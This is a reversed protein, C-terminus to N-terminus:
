FIDNHDIESSLRYSSTDETNIEINVCTGPFDNDMKQYLENSATFEYYGFRSIIQLKGRNLKIFDKLLKLGLGGPLNGTKTTHGEMVAWKLANVSNIKRGTFNRVNERIGIGADSITFDLRHKTPYFQGCVFIGSKSKSHFTANIFIELLSQRFRKTLVDSMRPIGKGKMYYDLYESFQEDANLKFIKFPLTTQNTDPIANDGFLTLFRNRKLIERIKRPTNLLNVDNLENRLRAIVSYLPAAMNAEFFSCDSFDLDVSDFLLYKTNRFVEAISNFGSMDSRITGM